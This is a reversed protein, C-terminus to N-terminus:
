AEGGTQLAPEAFAANKLVIPLEVPPAETAKSRTILLAEYHREFIARSNGLHKHGTGPHSLEVLSGSTKRLTKFSGHLGAKQVLGRFRLRFWEPTRDFDIIPGRPPCSKRITAVIEPPL